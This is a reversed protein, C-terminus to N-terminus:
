KNRSLQALLRLIEIYLWVVTVLLGFAGYWEFYDPMGSQSGREIFDFDLIFNLAAVVCIVLSVVIGIMGGNFITMPHGLLAGIFGALYFIAIAITATFIVKRFTETAQIIRTKYLFLMSFLTLLTIAIANVVIGGYAANYAFSLAGVLLGECLAYAPATINSSRPKFATIFALILGTIASVTILLSARDYFGKACIGWSFFAAAVVITLLIFTKNVAGSVTMPKSDLIVNEMVDQRFMPNSNTRRM